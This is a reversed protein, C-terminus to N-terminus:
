REHEVSIEFEGDDSVDLTYTLEVRQKRDGFEIEATTEYTDAPFCHSAPGRYYAEHLVSYTDDPAIETEKPYNQGRLYPGRQGEESTDIVRWCGDVPSEPFEGHGLSVRPTDPYLLVDGREGSLPSLFEFAYTGLGAPFVSVSEGYTNALTLEIEAPSETSAQTVVSAGPNLDDITPEESTKPSKTETATEPESTEPKATETGATGDSETPSDSNNSPCGALGALAATSGLLVDRRKM